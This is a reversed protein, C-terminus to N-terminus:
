MRVSKRRVYDTMENTTALDNVKHYKTYNVSAV